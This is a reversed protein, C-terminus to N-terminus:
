KVINSLFNNVLMLQGDVFKLKFVEEDFFDAFELSVDAQFFNLRKPHHLLCFPPLYFIRGIFFSSEPEDESDDALDIQLKMVDGM